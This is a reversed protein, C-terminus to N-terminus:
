DTWNGDQAVIALLLEALRESSSNATHRNPALTGSDSTLRDFRALRMSPTSYFNVWLALKKGRGNELVMKMSRYGFWHETHERWDSNQVLASTLAAITKPDDVSVSHRITQGGHLEFIPSLEINTVTTLDYGM